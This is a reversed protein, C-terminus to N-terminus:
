SATKEKKVRASITIRANKPEKGDLNLMGILQGPAANAPPPLATIDQPKGADVSTITKPSGHVYITIDFSGHLKTLSFLKFQSYALM